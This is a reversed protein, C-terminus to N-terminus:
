EPPLDHREILYFKHLCGEGLDNRNGVGGGAQEVPAKELDRGLDLRQEFAVHSFLASLQHGSKACDHVTQSIEIRDKGDCFCQAQLMHGIAHSGFMVLRDAFRQDPSRLVPEAVVERGGRSCGPDDGVLRQRAHHDGVGIALNRDL